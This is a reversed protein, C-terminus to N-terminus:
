DVMFLNSDKVKFIKLRAGIDLFAHAYNIAAFANVYEGKKRFYKADDYYCKALEYIDKAKKSDPKIKKLAKETTKFYNDLKEETIEKM